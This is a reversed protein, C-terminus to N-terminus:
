LVYPSGLAEMTKELAVTGITCPDNRVRSHLKKAILLCRLINMNASKVYMKRNNEGQKTYRTQMQQM